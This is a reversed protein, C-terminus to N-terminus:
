RRITNDGSCADWRHINRLMLTKCPLTILVEGLGWAPSSDEDATRSKNNLKNVAVRRIPPREEM